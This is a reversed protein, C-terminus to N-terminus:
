RRGNKLMKSRLWAKLLRDITDGYGPICGPGVSRLRLLSKLSGRSIAREGPVVSSHFVLVERNLRHKLHADLEGLLNWLRYAAERSFRGECAFRVLDSREMWVEAEQPMSCEERAFLNM